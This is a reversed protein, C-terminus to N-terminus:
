RQFIKSIDYRKSFTSRYGLEAEIKQYTTRDLVVRISLLCELMDLGELQSVVLGFVLLYQITTTTIIHIIERALLGM